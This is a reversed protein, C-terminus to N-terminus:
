YDLLCKPGLGSMMPLITCLYLCKPVQYWQHYYVWVPRSQLLCLKSTLLCGQPSLLCTSVQYWQHYYDPLCQNNCVFNPPTCVDKPLSLLCTCRTISAITYEPRSQNNCIFHFKSIRLCGQPHATSMYRCVQYWQCYYDPLDNCVFNPPVCVDKPPCYVYVYRAGNPVTNLCVNTTSVFNPPACADKPHATSMYMGSVVPPLLWASMTQQLCLKSTHLCGQPPVTSM